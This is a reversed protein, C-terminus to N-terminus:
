IQQGAEDARPPPRGSLHIAWTASPYMTRLIPASASRPLHPLPSILKMLLDAATLNVDLLLDPAM